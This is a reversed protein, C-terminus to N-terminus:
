EIWAIDGDMGESFGEPFFKRLKMIDGADYSLTPLIISKKHVIVSINYDYKLVRAERCDFGALILNYLLLGGNWLNVHGGVLENKLPPVTIALVGGEKLVAHVKKLFLNVNLQHELIHSAWVCDFPSTFVVANFDGRIIEIGKQNGQEYYISTGFDVATVEKGHERFIRTHEGGGSGIDLVTDFRYEALLLQIATAGFRLHRFEDKIQVSHSYWTSRIPVLDYGLKRLIRRILPLRM